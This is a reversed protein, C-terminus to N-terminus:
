ATKRKRRRALLGIGGGALLLMTAPEPVGSVADKFNTALRFEDLIFDGSHDAGALRIKDFKIPTNSTGTISASGVLTANDTNPNLWFEVETNGANFTFKMVIFSPNNADTSINVGPKTFGVQGSFDVKWQQGAKGIYMKEDNGDFLSIGRWSITNTFGAFFSMYVSTGVKGVKNDATLLGAKALSSNSSTDFRRYRFDGGRFHGGTSKVGSKEHSLKHVPIGDPNHGSNLWGGNWGLGGNVDGGNVWRIPNGKYSSWGRDTGKDYYGEFGEYVLIDASSVASFCLVVTLAALFKSKM